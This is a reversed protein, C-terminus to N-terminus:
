RGLYTNGWEPSSEASGTAVAHLRHLLDLLGEPLQSLLVSLQADVFSDIPVSRRDACRVTGGREGGKSLGQDNSAGRFLFQLGAAPILRRLGSVAAAVVQKRLQEDAKILDLVAQVESV